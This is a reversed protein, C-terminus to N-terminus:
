DKAGDLLTDLQADTLAVHYFAQYFDRTDSRIDGALRNPFFLRGLWQLGLLRNISPPSDVWGYPLSPGLFVRKRRVAEVNAWAPNTNVQAAFDRNITVITDPNWLLVQELSANFLGGGPGDAVNRGGAREIIETNISGRRGTELGAPGRALYVKPRQGEDVSRVIRDNEALIEEARRALREARDPVGIMAGLQRLSAVANAFRGDILVYPIGTQSQVQDALSVYTPSVSGYDVILDPKAAMVTELGATNGRGTLRGIEPLDRVAPLLFAREAERPRLNWGIMKEPALMYLLVSAPPGAALVREVRDPLTVSRGASDVFTGAPAAGAWATAAIAVLAGLLRRHPREASPRPGPRGFWSGWRM